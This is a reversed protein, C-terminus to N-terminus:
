HAPIATPPVITGAAIKRSISAIRGVISAPVIAAPRAFGTAHQALGFLHDGGSFKGRATAQVTERVAVSVKKLASTLVYSGLYSQNSDAGIGYVGHGGATELYGLGTVAAVQFLIDAGHAIQDSAAKVGASRDTFTGAYGGLIKIGPDVSQAGAVYGALYRNVAPIDQGGLYGITNHVAKGVRQKEMLGALAGVLYGSEQEKFLINDVNSLSVEGNGPNLPRADVIAFRAKPFEQAATYLAHAMGYGVAFTVTSYTQAAKILEPLYQSATLSQVVAPTIGFRRHAEQLGLFASHNFSRDQLGGIDTVLTASFGAKKPVPPFKVASTPQVTSKPTARRPPASSSACGSLVIILFFTFAPLTLSLSPKKRM